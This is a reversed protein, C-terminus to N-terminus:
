PRPSRRSVEPAVSVEEVEYPHNPHPIWHPNLRTGVYALIAPDGRRLGAQLRHYGDIIARDVGDVLIPPATEVAEDAYIAVLSDSTREELETASFYTMPLLRREYHTFREVRTPVLEGDDMADDSERLEHLYALIRDSTVENETPVTIHDLWKEDVVRSM